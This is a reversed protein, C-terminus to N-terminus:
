EEQKKLRKRSKLIRAVPTAPDNAAKKSAQNFYVPASLAKKAAAVPDAKSVAAVQQDDDTATPTSSGYLQSVFAKTIAKAQQKVSKTGSNAVKNITQVPVKIIPADEIEQDLEFPDRTKPM